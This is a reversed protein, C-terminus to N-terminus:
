TTQINEKIPSQFIKIRKVKKNENKEKKLDTFPYQFPSRGAQARKRM